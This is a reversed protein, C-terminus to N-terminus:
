AQRLPGRYDRPLLFLINIAGISLAAIMVLSLVDFVPGLDGFREYYLGIFWNAGSVAGAAVNLLGIATARAAPDIVEFTTTWLNAQYLGVGVGYALMGWILTERTESLGILLVGPAALAMGVCQITTRGSIRRRAAFDGLAGGLLLAVITAPQIWVTALIGADENSLEFKQHLHPALWFQVALVVVSTAVFISCLALFSRVRLVSLLTDALSAGKQGLGAGAVRETRPPERFLLLFIGAVALGLIAFAFMAMRWGSLEFHALGGGLTVDYSQSDAIRGGYKGAVILSLNYSALYFGVASSRARSSFCDAVVSAIAPVSASQGVAMLVRFAFLSYLSDAMGIGALAVSSLLLSWLLVSRRRFRDGLYGVAIQAFAYPLYFAPSLLSFDEASLALEARLPPQVYNILSRHLYLTFYSAAVLFLALLCYALGPREVEARGPPETM